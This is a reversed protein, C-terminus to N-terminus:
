NKGALLYFVMFFAIVFLILLLVKAPSLPAKGGVEGTQGNMMFHYIKNKYSYSSIWIPLLIHKYKINRHKTDVHLNRVEDANIERIIGEHIRDKIMNGAIGWGERLGISYREAYFGSLYEPKYGVLDSLQYSEIRSIKKERVQKSANVMVDNFYQSYVGSTPWWRTHRVQRTKTVTKGNEVATYTETVWYHTGGEGTYDSVTQSDYTWFPVYVGNIQKTTYNNKLARPAMYRKKIWNAFSELAKKENIKFPILSEPPIGAREETKAVHSSGCFSCFQAMGYSELVTEAGCNECKIVTTEVGWDSPEDKEAIEYDYEKIEDSQDSIIRKNGCYACSLANNDPDFTMNGGCNECPFTNTDVQKAAEPTATERRKEVGAM